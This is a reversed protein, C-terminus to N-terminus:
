EMIDFISIQPEEKTSTYNNADNEIRNKAINFYHEDLEIGIFDRGLNKCAVGTTGSGMFPDLIIEGASSFTNILHEMLKVPKECSHMTDQVKAFMMVDSIAREPPPPNGKLCLYMPEYQPRTYYGIGFNNKVWVPMSKIEYKKLAMNFLPITPWGMFTILVTNDKLIEHTKKFVSELWKEFVHDDMNDNLITGHTGRQPRFNINYPPDTIICDVKVGEAILKDMEVLCDGHILRM